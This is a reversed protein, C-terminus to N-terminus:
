HPHKARYARCAVDYANWDVFGGAVFSETTPEIEGRVMRNHELAILTNM